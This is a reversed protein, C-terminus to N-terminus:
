IMFICAPLPNMLFLFFIDSVGARALSLLWNLVSRKVELYLTRHNVLNSIDWGVSSLPKLKQLIEKEDKFFELADDVSM